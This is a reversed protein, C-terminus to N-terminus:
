GLEVPVWPGKANYNPMSCSYPAFRMLRLVVDLAAASHPAKLIAYFHVPLKNAASQSVSIPRCFLLGQRMAITHPLSLRFTM